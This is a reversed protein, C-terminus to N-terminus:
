ERGALLKSMRRQYKAQRKSSIGAERRTDEPTTTSEEQRFALRRWAELETREASSEWALGGKEAAFLFEIRAPPLNKLYEDLARAFPATTMRKVTAM